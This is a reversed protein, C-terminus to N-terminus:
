QLGELLELQGLARLSQSVDRLLALRNRRIREDEVKVMVNDLFADLPAKLSLISARHNELQRLSTQPATGLDWNGLMEEAQEIMADVGAKAPALSDFLKQEYDSEFRKPMIETEADAEKALNSARKYLTMLTSFEEDQRLHHLLHARQSALIVAPEDASAAQVITSHVGEDNLLGGIRDWLFSSVATATDEAVEVDSAKLADLAEAIFFSLPIHWGQQNLIRAVAIGDRRLGFPDASGSPRKGIAFFGVIKDIRDCVALLAGVTSEPLAGNASTPRVGDELVQAVDAPYDEALAYARAMIGELEPLEDIMHTALDARYVPLVQELIGREHESLGLIEAMKQAAEGVRAIKDAMSGLNRQFGIGSLGWAHQALSKRRDADWFFRADSLRGALVQEYGKRIVNEDEVETNSVTAFFPALKGAQEGEKYRMPFYRQHHIMVTSLVEEPLVLYSEEFRGLVGVPYEILSAVEELLEEDGLPELSRQEAIKEVAQWTLWQRKSSDAIVFAKELVQEYDNAHNLELWGGNEKSAMFRHGRTHRGAILDAIEVPILEADLLAVLWAIPRLFATDVDGWRMKRPAPLSEVLRALLQPLVATAKIGGQQVYAFIYDGKDTEERKLESAEIGNAKAFGLAPKTPNGEDDFAISAAPGRRKELRTESLEALDEVMVAIRRPTAYSQVTGYSLGVEELYSALLPAIAEEVQPVYWSPLEETGIEFLLRSM